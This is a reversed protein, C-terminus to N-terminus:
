ALLRLVRTERMTRDEVDLSTPVAYRTMEALGGRPLYARGPDGLLM